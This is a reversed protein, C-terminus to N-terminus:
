RSLNKDLLIKKSGLYKPIEAKIFNLLIVPKKTEPVGIRVVSQCYMDFDYHQMLYNVSVHVPNKKQSAQEIPHWVSGYFIEAAMKAADDMSKGQADVPDILPEDFDDKRVIFVFQALLIGDKVDRRGISVDITYGGRMIICNDYITGKLKENLMELAKNKLATIQEGSNEATASKNEIKEDNEKNKKKFLGM